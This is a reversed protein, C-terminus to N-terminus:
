GFLALARLALLPYERAVLDMPMEFPRATSCSPVHREYPTPTLYTTITHALMRWCGPRAQHPQPREITESMLDPTEIEPTDIVSLM